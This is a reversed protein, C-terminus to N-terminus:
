NEVAALPDTKLQRQCAVATTDGLTMDGPTMDRPTTCLSRARPVPPTGSRQPRQLGAPAKEASGDLPAQGQRRDLLKDSDNLVSRKRMTWARAMDVIREVSRVSSM